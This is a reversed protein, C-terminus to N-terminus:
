LGLATCESCQTCDPCVWSFEFEFQEAFEEFDDDRLKDSGDLLEQFEAHLQAHGSRSNTTRKYRDSCTGCEGGDYNIWITKGCCGCEDTDHEGRSHFVLSAHNEGCECALNYPDIPFMDDFDDCCDMYSDLAMGADFEDLSAYNMFDRVGGAAERADEQFLTMAKEDRFWCDVCQGTTMM